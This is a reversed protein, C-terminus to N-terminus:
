PTLLDYVLPTINSRRNLKNKVYLSNICNPDADTAIVEKDGPILLSFHGDNAGLDIANKYEIGNIFSGVLETKVRLYAEGLITDTYYDDWTTKVKKPSLKQVFSELGKLLIELKQRSFNGEKGPGEKKKGSFKAQLHVHLFTNMNWRSRKPLLNVLVDMPIGNPYALFLRQTGPHDYHMLLLPALFSECFQRYAVWPKGEEYIEFSLTDIFIPSGKHFQINFPTADKLIIGKQVAATAIQLTRLAADKWMDFSWEYPYSIFSLQEPLLVRGSKFGFGEKEKLDEHAVLWGKGVLEDYLGSEMLRAYHTEYVPHVYRYIMGEQQFIFGATDRYSAPNIQM